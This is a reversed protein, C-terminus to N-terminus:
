IRRSVEQADSTAGAPRGRAEDPPKGVRAFVENRAQSTIGDEGRGPIREEPVPGNRTSGDMSTGPASDVAPASRSSPMQTTGPVTPAPARTGPVTAWELPLRVTFRSGKGPESQVDITGGHSQVIGWTVALGLGTGRNGKTSFFPEFLRPLDDPPIGRGTDEVTLELFRGPAEGEGTSRSRIRITGGAEGVAEAANLILNVLVQQIQNADAAVTPLEPSLDLALDVHNQALQNIVVAVARRVTENLDAPARRPPTPRAFDLLGKVIERCRKTERVIVELDSQVEPGANQGKLLLSAYTLVGTLPNNIEHAIGAALRGVSALKDAQTLQRQTEALRETMANFSGELEALEHTGEVPIKTTLDGEAVRRTGAVLADVPRLVLRRNLWWLLLSTTVIALVAFVALSVRSRLIGRDAEALSVTVDLVGLVSQDPSHAHCSAAACGPENQIPTVIGLVRGGDPGRFVRARAQVPPRTLPRGEAHCVYCAEARKDLARGIEAEDSSFQIRGDKNFLRIRQIGAQQGILRIRHHLRERRNELMDDHTSSKITESLQDASRTLEFVLESRQVRLVAAAMCGITVATVLAAGLILRTGIRSRM